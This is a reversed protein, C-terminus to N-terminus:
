VIAPWTTEGKAPEKQRNRLRGHKNLKQWRQAKSEKNKCQNPPFRFKPM